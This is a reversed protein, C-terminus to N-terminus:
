PQDRLLYQCLRLKCEDPFITLKNQQDVFQVWDRERDTLATSRRRDIEFLARRLMLIVKANLGQECADLLRAMEISDLPRLLEPEPIDM